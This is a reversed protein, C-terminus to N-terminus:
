YILGADNYRCPSVVPDVRQTRVRVVRVRVRVRVRISVVPDVRQTM